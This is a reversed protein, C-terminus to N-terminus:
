SKGEKRIVEDAGRRILESLSLGTKKCLRELAKIQQETLFVHKRVM